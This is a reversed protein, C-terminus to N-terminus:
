VLASLQLMKFRTHIYHTYKFMLARIRNPRKKPCTQLDTVLPKKCRAKICLVCLKGSNSIFPLPVYISKFSLSKWTHSVEFATSCGICEKSFQQGSNSKGLRIVKLFM